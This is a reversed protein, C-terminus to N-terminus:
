FLNKLLVSECSLGPGFGLGITYKKHYEDKLKNSQSRQLLDHLVFLFTASSMNGYNKLVNWSSVTQESSLGMVQEIDEVIKRGGPHIAWILNSAQKKKLIEKVFGAVNKKIINPVQRSLKMIFGSDGIKWTMEKLSDDLIKSKFGEIQWLPKTKMKESGVIVAAAGDGFLANGILVEPKFSLQMHLSCLEVCVILVCNNSDAKVIDHAVELARFAGFCGMFNIATRKIDDNLGLHKSVLLEIGPAMMGTCSVSIIHTIKKLDGGWSTTVSKAAEIALKPAEKKYIKNRTEGSPLNHPFDEGWFNWQGIPKHFDQLVSYRKEIATNSYLRLMRDKIKGTLNFAQTLKQAVEVQDLSYPPLAISLALILPKM